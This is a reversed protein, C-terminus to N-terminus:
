IFKCTVQTALITNRQIRLKKLAGETKEVTQKCNCDTAKRMWWRVGSYSISCFSSVRGSCRLEGETELPTRATWDKTKQTTNQDQLYYNTKKDYNLQGNYHRDKKSKCTRFVGKTDEFKKQLLNCLKSLESPISWHFYIKRHTRLHQTIWSKDNCLKIRINVVETTSIM